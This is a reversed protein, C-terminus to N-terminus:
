RCPPLEQTPQLASQPPHPAPRAGAALLGRIADYASPCLYHGWPRAEDDFTTVRWMGLDELDRSVLYRRGTDPNFLRFPQGPAALDRAWASIREVKAMLAALDPSLPRTM